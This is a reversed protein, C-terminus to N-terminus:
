GISSTLVAKAVAAARSPSFTTTRGESYGRGNRGIGDPEDGDPRAEPPIEFGVPRFPKRPVGSMGIM